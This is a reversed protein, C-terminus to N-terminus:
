SSCGCSHLFYELLKKLAVHRSKLIDLQVRKWQLVYHLLVGIISDTVFFSMKTIPFVPLIHQSFIHTSYFWYLKNSLISSPSWFLLHHLHSSLPPLFFCSSIFPFSVSNHFFSFSPTYLSGQLDFLKLRHWSSSAQTRGLTYKCPHSSSCRDADLPYLRLMPPTHAHAHTHTNSLKVTHRRLSGSFREIGMLRATVEETCACVCEQLTVGSLCGGHCLTNPFLSIVKCVKGTDTMHKHIHKWQAYQLFFPPLLLDCISQSPPLSTNKMWPPTQDLLLYRHFLTFAASRLSFPAFLMSANGLNTLQSCLLLSQLAPPTMADGDSWGSVWQQSSGSLRATQM